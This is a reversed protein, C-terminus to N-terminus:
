FFFSFNNVDVGGASRLVGAGRTYTLVNDLDLGGVQTREIRLELASQWTIVDGGADLRVHGVGTGAFETQLPLGLTDMPENFTVRWRLTAVHWTVTVVHPPIGAAPRGGMTRRWARM